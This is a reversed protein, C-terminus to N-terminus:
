PVRLNMVATVLARRRDRDQALEMWDVGGCVVEQLDMKINNEWRRKPRGLTKKREPKGVLVRHIGRREEMNKEIQDRPTCIM